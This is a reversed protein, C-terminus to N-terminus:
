RPMRVPRFGGCTSPARTTRAPRAGARRACRRRRRAPRRHPRAARVPERPPGRGRQRQGAPPRLLPRGPPRRPVDRRGPQRRPSSTSSTSRAAARAGRDVPAAGVLAALRPLPRRRLARRPPRDPDLPVPVGQCTVLHRAPDIGRVSVQIREVSSDVYRATGGATAEEGLVHWPEIAQRLELESRAPRGIRTM